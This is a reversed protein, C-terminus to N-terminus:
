DVFFSILCAIAVVLVLPVFLTLDVAFFDAALLLVAFFQLYTKAFFLRPAKVAM